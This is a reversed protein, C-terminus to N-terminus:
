LRSSASASSSPRPSRACTHDNVASAIKQLTHRGDAQEAVRYSLGHTCTGYNGTLCSERRAHELQGGERYTILLILRISKHTTYITRSKRRILRRRNAAFTPSGCGLISQATRYPTPTM